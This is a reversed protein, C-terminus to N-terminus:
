GRNKGSSCWQMVPSKNAYGSRSCRRQRRLPITKLKAAGELLQAEADLALGHFYNTNMDGNPDNRKAEALSRRHAAYAEVEDKVLNGVIWVGLAAGTWAAGYLIVPLM